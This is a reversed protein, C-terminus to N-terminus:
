RYSEASPGNEGPRAVDVLQEPSTRVVVSVVYKILIGVEYRVHAMFAYKQTHGQMRLIHETM